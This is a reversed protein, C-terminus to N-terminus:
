WVPDNNINSYHVTWDWYPIRVTEDIKRLASELDYLFQRHWGLFLPSSHVQPYYQVHMNSLQDW